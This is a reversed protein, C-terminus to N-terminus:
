KFEQMWTSRLDQYYQWLVEPAENPSLKTQIHEIGRKFVANYNKNGLRVQEMAFFMLDLTDCWRLWMQEEKTLSCIFGWERDFAKELAEWALAIAPQEWKMQAPIDGLKAESLDHTLAAKLLSVSAMPNLIVILLAVGCSHHGVTEPNVTPVTHFRKVNMGARATEVIDFPNM